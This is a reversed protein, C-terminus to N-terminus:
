NKIDIENNMQFKRKKIKDAKVQLEDEKKISNGYFFARPIENKNSEYLIKNNIISDEITIIEKLVMFAKCKEKTSVRKETVIEFEMVIELDTNNNKLIGLLENNKEADVLVTANTMAGNKTIAVRSYDKDNNEAEIAFLIRNKTNINHIYISLFNINIYAPYNHGCCSFHFELFLTAENDKCSKQRLVQESHLELNTAIVRKEYVILDELIVLESFNSIYNNHELEMLRNNQKISIQGLYITGIAAFVTGWFNLATSADWETKLIEIPADIKYLINIIFQVIIAFLILILILNRKKLREDGIYKATAKIFFPM